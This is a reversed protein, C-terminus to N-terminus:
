RSGWLGGILSSLKGQKAQKGAKAAVADMDFDITAAALDYFLPKVPVAAFQVADLDVLRPVHEPAGAARKKALSNVAMAPRASPNSFWDGKVEKPKDASAGAVCQGRVVVLAKKVDEALKQVNEASVGVQASWLADSATQDATHTAVLQQQQTTALPL